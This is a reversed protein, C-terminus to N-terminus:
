PSVTISFIPQAEQEPFGEAADAKKLGEAQSEVKRRAVRQGM